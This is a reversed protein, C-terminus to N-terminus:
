LAASKLAVFSRLGTWRSLISSLADERILFIDKEFTDIIEDRYRLSWRDAKTQHWERAIAEFTNKQSM